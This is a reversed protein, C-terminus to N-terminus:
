SIGAEKAYYQTIKESAIKVAEDEDDAAVYVYGSQRSKDRVLLRVQNILNMAIYDNDSREKEVEYVMGYKFRASYINKMCIDADEYVEVEAHECDSSYRAAIANAKEEDTTAAIIHYDSSCGKTVVYIKAM